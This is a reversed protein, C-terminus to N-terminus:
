PRLSAATAYSSAALEARPSFAPGLYAHLELQRGCPRGGSRDDVNRLGRLPQGGRPLRRLDRRGETLHRNVWTYSQGTLRSIASYSHGEIQLCLVLRQQPKLRELARLAERAELIDDVSTGALEAGVDEAPQERRRLLALAEHKAVTYRGIPM